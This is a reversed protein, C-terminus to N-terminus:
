SPGLAARAADALRSLGEAFLDEPIILPPTVILLKRRADMHLWLKRARIEAFFAAIRDAPACLEVAAMLGLGRPHEISAPFEAALERMASILMPALRDARAFLDDQEYIALAAAAAACGLPHAYSTLGAYLVHEDFHRAIRDHVLVAGLPAYGGTVAKAVTIMDPEGGFREFAFAAGTRGFGTLVEDAILLAGHADCAARVMPWYEPPPFLVGNAGPVAELIVAAVGGELALLDGIHTACERRCGDVVHGFPCRDCYCDMAHVVGALGPELPPRRFDGTLTLAGMTAGHYSRYRSVLKHRGTFLRAIKLANENAEAGGLTFFVKSFGEPAMALLREAAETKAPFVATPPAVCLTQAQRAIAEIIRADGHGLNAQYSLSGLDLWTDGDTTVIEAGRGSAMAFPLAHNQAAWTFFFPHPTTM